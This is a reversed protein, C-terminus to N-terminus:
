SPVDELGVFVKRIDARGRYRLCCRFCCDVRAFPATWAPVPTALCAHPYADLADACPRADDCPEPSALCRAVDDARAARALLLLTWFM